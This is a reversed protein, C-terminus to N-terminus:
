LPSDYRQIETISPCRGFPDIIWDKSSYHLMGIADAVYDSSSLNQRIHPYIIHMDIPFTMRNIVAFDMDTVLVWQHNNPYLHSGNNSLASDVIRGALQMDSTIILFSTVYSKLSGIKNEIRNSVDSGDPIIFWDVMLLNHQRIVNRISSVVNIDDFDVGTIAVFEKHGYKSLYELTVQVKTSQTSRKNLSIVKAPDYMYQWHKDRSDYM